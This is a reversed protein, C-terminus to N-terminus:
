ASKEWHDSATQRQDTGPFLDILHRKDSIVDPNPDILHRKGKIV